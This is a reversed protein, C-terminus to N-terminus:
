PHPPTGQPLSQVGPPLGQVGPPLGKVGPPMGPMGPRPMGGMPPMYHFRTGGGAGSVSFGKMPAKFSAGPHRGALGPAYLAAVSLLGMWYCSSKMFRDIM